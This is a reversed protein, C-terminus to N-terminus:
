FLTCIQSFQLGPHSLIYKWLVSFVLIHNDENWEGALKWQARVMHWAKPQARSVHHAFGPIIGTRVSSLRTLSIFWSWVIVCTYFLLESAHKLPTDGTILLSPSRAKASLDPFPERLFSQPSIVLYGPALPTLFFFLPHASCKPCCFSCPKCSPASSPSTHESCLALPARSSIWSWTCPSEMSHFTRM